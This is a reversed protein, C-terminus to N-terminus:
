LDNMPDAIMSLGILFDGLDAMHSTSHRVTHGDLSGIGIIVLDGQDKFVIDVDLGGEFVSSTGDEPVDGLGPIDDEEAMSVEAIFCSISGIRRRAVEVDVLGYFRLSSM